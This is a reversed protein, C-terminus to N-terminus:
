ALVSWFFFTFSFILFLTFAVYQWEGILFSFFILVLGCLDIIENYYLVLCIKTTHKWIWLKTQRNCFLIVRWNLSYFNARALIFHFHNAFNVLIFYENNQVSCEKGFFNARCNTNFLPQKFFCKPKCSLIFKLAYLFNNTATQPLSPYVKRQEEPLLNQLPM